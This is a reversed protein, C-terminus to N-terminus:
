LLLEGGPLLDQVRYPLPPFRLGIRGLFDSIGNNGM